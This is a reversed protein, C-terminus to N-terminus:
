LGCLEASAIVEYEAVCQASASRGEETSLDFQIEVNEVPNIEASEDYFRYLCQDSDAAFVDFTSLTTFWTSTSYVEQNGLNCIQESDFKGWCECEFNVLEDTRNPMLPPEIAPPLEAVRKDWLKIIDQRGSEDANQYAVCLGYLGKYYRNNKLDACPDDESKGNAFVPNASLVLMVVVISPVIFKQM